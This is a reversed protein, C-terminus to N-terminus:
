MDKVTFTMVYNFDTSDVAMLHQNEVLFYVVMVNRMNLQTKDGYVLSQYVGDDSHDVEHFFDWMVDPKNSEIEDYRINSFLLLNILVVGNSTDEVMVNIKSKSM